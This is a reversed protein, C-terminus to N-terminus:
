GTGQAGRGASRESIPGYTNGLGRIFAAADRVPEELRTLWYLCEYIPTEEGALYHGSGTTVRDGGTSWFRSVGYGRKDDGKVVASYIYEVVITAGRVDIRTYCTEWHSHFVASDTYSDGVMSFPHIHTGPDYQFRFLSYHRVKRGDEYRDLIELWHGDLPSVIVGNDLRRWHVGDLFPMPATPSRRAEPVAAFVPSDNREVGERILTRLAEGIEGIARSEAGVRDDYTIVRLGAIDFPLRTGHEAIVITGSRLAHRVGLEYLVNPNLGTLDVIVTSARHLRLFLDETISGSQAVEDGRICTFARQGDIEVSEVARKIIREYRDHFAEFAAEAGIPMVVFCEKVARRWAAADVAATEGCVFRLLTARARRRKATVYKVVPILLQVRGSQPAGPRRGHQYGLPDM